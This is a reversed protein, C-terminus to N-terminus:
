LKLLIRVRVDVVGDVRLKNRRQFEKVSKATEPGFYGSTQAKFLGLKKLVTQVKKVELGRSGIKLSVVPAPKTAPKIILERPKDVCNLNCEDYVHGASCGVGQSKFLNNKDFLARIEKKLGLDGTNNAKYLACTDNNANRYKTILDAQACASYKESIVLELNDCLYRQKNILESFDSRLSSLCANGSDYIKKLEVRKNMDAEKKMSVEYVKKSNVLRKEIDVIIPKYTKLQGTIDKVAPIYERIKKGVVSTTAKSCTLFWPSRIFPDSIANEAQVRAKENKVRVDEEYQRQQEKEQAVRVAEVQQQAALTKADAEAKLRANEQCTADCTPGVYTGNVGILIANADLNSSGFGLIVMAIIFIKKM